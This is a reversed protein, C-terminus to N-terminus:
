LVPCWLTPALFGYLHLSLWTVLFCYLWLPLSGSLRLAPVDYFFIETVSRVSEITNVALM